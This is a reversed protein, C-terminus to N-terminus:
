RNGHPLSRPDPFSIRDAIPEMYTLTSDPPIRPRSITYTITGAQLPLRCIMQLAHHFSSLPSPSACTCMIRRCGNQSIYRTYCSPRRIPISPYSLIYPTPTPVQHNIPSQLTQNHHRPSSHQKLILSSLHFCTLLCLNNPYDCPKDILPSKGSSSVSQHSLHSLHSICNRLVQPFSMEKIHSSNVDM